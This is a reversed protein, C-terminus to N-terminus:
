FQRNLQLLHRLREQFHEQLFRNHFKEMHCRLHKRTRLLLIYNKLSTKLKLLTSLQVRKKAILNNKIWKQLQLENKQMQTKLKPNKSHLLSLYQMAGCNRQQASLSLVTICCILVFSLKKINQMYNLLHM